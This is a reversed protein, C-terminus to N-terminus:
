DRNFLSYDDQFQKILLIVDQLQKVVKSYETLQSKYLEFRRLFKANLSFLQSQKKDSQSNKISSCAYLNIQFEVESLSEIMKTVRNSKQNIVECRKRCFMVISEFLEQLKIEVDIDGEDFLVVYTCRDQIFRESLIKQRQIEGLTQKFINDYNELKAHFRDLNEIYSEVNFSHDVVVANSM